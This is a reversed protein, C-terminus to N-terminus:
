SAPHDLKAPKRDNLAAACSVLNMVLECLKVIETLAIHEESSHARMMGTCLNVTPLGRLNFVNADSGGGARLTEPTRGVQELAQNALRLVPSDGGLSFARFADVVKVEVDIGVEIASKHLADVMSEALRALVDEDHGRCEAVLECQPPVINAAVGGSILGVNATTEADLRGLRMTAIAMAAAQIASRGLEPELGAHAAVGTYHAKILKQSPAGSVVGGVPGSSDLVVAMPSQMVDPSLNEAGLLGDEECVTFVLEYPSTGTNSQTLLETAHLMAAIAAKDDAGLITGCRNRFVGDAGLVPEIADTPPVTDLHAALAVNPQAAGAPVSCYLNGCDGGIAKGADDEQVPLGIDELISAVRDAMAREARSPSNIRALDVFLQALRESSPKPLSSM